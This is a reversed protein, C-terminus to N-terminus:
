HAQDEPAAAPNYAQPRILLYFLWSTREKRSFQYDSRGDSSPAGDDYTGSRHAQLPFAIPGPQCVGCPGEYWGNM